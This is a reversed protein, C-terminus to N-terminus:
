ATKTSAYVLLGGGTLVIIALIAIVPVLLNMRKRRRRKRTNRPYNTGPQQTYPGTELSTGYPPSPPYEGASPYSAPSPFQMNSPAPQMYVPGGNSYGGSENPAGQYPSFTQRNSPTSPIQMQRIDTAGPPPAVKAPAFSSFDHAFRAGCNNCFDQTPVLPMGCQPCPRYPTSVLM